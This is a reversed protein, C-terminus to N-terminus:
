LPWPQSLSAAPLQSIWSTNCDIQFNLFHTSELNGLLAAFARSISFFEYGETSRTSTSCDDSIKIRYSYFCVLATRSAKTETLWRWESIGESNENRGQNRRRQFNKGGDTGNKRSVLTQKEEFITDKPCKLRDNHIRTNLIM